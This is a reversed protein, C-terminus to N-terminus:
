PFGNRNFPNFELKPNWVPIQIKVLLFVGWPHRVDLRCHIWFLLGAGKRRDTQVLGLYGAAGSRKTELRTTKNNTRKNERGIIHTTAFPAPRGSEYCSASVSYASRSIYTTSLEDNRENVKKMKIQFVSTLSTYLNCKIEQTKLNMCWFQLSNFPPTWMEACTCSGWPRLFGVWMYKLLWM